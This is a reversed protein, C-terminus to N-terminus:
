LYKQLRERDLIEVRGRKLSVAGEESLYKLVRTVVERASGINRAIEDHTMRLVPQDRRVMEDWLFIAVRRDVGSRFLM